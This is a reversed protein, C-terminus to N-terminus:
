STPKKRTPTQKMELSNEDVKMMTTRGSQSQEQQSVGLGQLVSLQHLQSARESMKLDEVLAFRNLANPDINSSICLTLM